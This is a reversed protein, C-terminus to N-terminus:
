TRSVKDKTFRRGLTPRDMAGWRYKYPEQGRLFDIETSGEEIAREVAHGILLTGVSLRAFEPDFGGLYYYTRRHSTFGYLVAATRQSLKLGYLRLLGNSLLERGACKHFRQVAENKLLGSRSSATWRATHLRILEDILYDFNDENAEVYEISHSKQARNAYYRLNSVMGAPLCQEIANRSNPLPLVPCPETPFREHSLGDPRLELLMSGPRIQVLDCEDWETITSQLYGAALAAVDGRYEALCLTDLYDSNGTGLLLLKRRPVESGSYIFFPLLAVLARNTHITLVRLEGEAFTDWWPLLWTASQFPTAEPCTRWLQDWEPRILQLESASKIQRLCLSSNV